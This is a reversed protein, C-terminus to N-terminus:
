IEKLAMALPLLKQEDDIVVTLEEPRCLIYVMDAEVSEDMDQDWVEKSAANKYVFFDTEDCDEYVLDPWFSRLTELIKDKSPVPGELIIDKGGIEM